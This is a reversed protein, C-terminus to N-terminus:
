VVTGPMLDFIYDGVHNVCNEQTQETIYMFERQPIHSDESPNNNWEAYELNTEVTVRGEEMASDGTLQSYLDGSLILLPHAGYFKITVPSHPPWSEGTSSTQNAFIEVFNNNLEEGCKGLPKSYEGSSLDKSFGEILDKAEKVSVKM